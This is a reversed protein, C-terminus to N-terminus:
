GFTALESSLRADTTLRDDARTEQLASAHKVGNLTENAACQGVCRSAAQIYATPLRARRPARLSIAM